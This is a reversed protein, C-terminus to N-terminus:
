RSFWGFKGEALRIWVYCNEEYLSRIRGGKELPLDLGGLGRIGIIARTYMADLSRVREASHNADITVGFRPMNMDFPGKRYFRVEIEKAKLPTEPISMAEAIVYPLRQSLLTLQPSAIFDPDYAVTVLPM